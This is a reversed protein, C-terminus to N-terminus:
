LRSGIQLPPDRDGRMYCTMRVPHRGLLESIELLSVGADGPPSAKAPPSPVFPVDHFAAAAMVNEHDVTDRAIGAMVQDLQTDGKGLTGDCWVRMIAEYKAGAVSEPKKDRHSERRFIM